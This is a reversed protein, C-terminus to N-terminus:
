HRGHGRDNNSHKNGKHGRNGKNGRHKDGRSDRRDGVYYDGHGRHREQYRPAFDNNYWSNQVFYVRDGCANYHRCHKSWNKSHSSPVRLYIPERDVYVREIVRPQRYIVRPQPYPYDGIDLRGFFGPQGISVSVGVDAANAPSMLSASIVAMAMLFRKM